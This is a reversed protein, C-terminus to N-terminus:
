LAEDVHHGARWWVRDSVSAWVGTMVYTWAHDWARYVLKERM